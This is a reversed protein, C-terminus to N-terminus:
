KEDTNETPTIPTPPLDPYAGKEIQDKMAARNAEIMIVQAEPSLHPAPDDDAGITSSSPSASPGGFGSNGLSPAGGGTGPNAAGSQQGRNRGFRGGFGIGAPPGGGNGAASAAVPTAHPAAFGPPGGPAPVGGGGGGKALELTQVVGHNNFTITAAKEDIKQVEIEDQREGEGMTYSLEKAPQGPQNAQVKFLVQVKGFITMIGNPTIKPPPIAPPDQSPDHVPIPVLGFMNRAVIPAYPNDGATIALVSTASLL